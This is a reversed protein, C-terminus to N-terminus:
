NILIHENVAIKFLNIELNHPNHVFYACIQPVTFIVSQWMWLKVSFSARATQIFLAECGL